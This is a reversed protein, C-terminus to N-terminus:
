LSTLVSIAVSLAFFRVVLQEAIRVLAFAHVQPPQGQQKCENLKAGLM